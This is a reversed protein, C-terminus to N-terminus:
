LVPFIILWLLLGSRSAQLAPFNQMVIKANKAPPLRQRTPTKRQEGETKSAAAAEAAVAFWSAASYGLRSRTELGARLVRRKHEPGRAHM